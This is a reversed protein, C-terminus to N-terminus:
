QNWFIRANWNGGSFLVKEKVKTQQAAFCKGEISKLLIQKESIM